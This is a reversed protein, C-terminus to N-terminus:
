KKFNTSLIRKVDLCGFYYIKQFKNNNNDISGNSKENLYYDNEKNKKIPKKLKNTINISKIDKELKQYNNYIKNYFDLNRLKKEKIDKMMKNKKNDMYDKIEKDGRSSKKSCLNELKKYEIEFNNNEDNKSNSLKIEKKPNSVIKKVSKAKKNNNKIKILSKINSM